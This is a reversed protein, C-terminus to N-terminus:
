FQFVVENDVLLARLQQADLVEVPVVLDRADLGHHHLAAAEACIRQIEYLEFAPFQRALTKQGASSGDQGEQLQLVGDGIFVVTVQQGFVAATMLLDACATAATGAWPLHASLFLWRKSNGGASTQSETDTNM